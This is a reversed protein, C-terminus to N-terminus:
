WINIKSDAVSEEDREVLNESDLEDKVKQVSNAAQNATQRTDLCGPIDDLVTDAEASEAILNPKRQELKEVKDEEVNNWTGLPIKTVPSSVLEAKKKLGKSEVHFNAETKEKTIKEKEQKAQKEEEERRRSDQLQEKMAQKLAAVRKDVASVSAEDTSAEETELEYYREELKSLFGKIEGEQQTCKEQEAKMEDGNKDVIMDFLEQYFILLNALLTEIKESVTPYRVKRNHATLDNITFVRMQAKAKRWQVNIEAKREDMMDLTTPFFM